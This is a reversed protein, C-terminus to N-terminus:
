LALGVRCRCCGDVGGRVLVKFGVVQSSRGELVGKGVLYVVHTEKAKDDSKDKSEDSQCCGGARVSVVILLVFHARKERGEM